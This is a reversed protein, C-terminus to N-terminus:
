ANELFDLEKARLTLQTVPRIDEVIAPRQCEPCPLLERGEALSSQDIDWIHSVRKCHPCTIVPLISISRRQKSWFRKFSEEVESPLAALCWLLFIAVVVGGISALAAVLGDFLNHLTFPM